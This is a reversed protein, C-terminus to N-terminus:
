ILMCRAIVVCVLACLIYGRFSFLLVGLIVSYGCDLLDVVPGAGPCFADVRICVGDMWFAGSM